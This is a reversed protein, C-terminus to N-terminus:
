LARGEAATGAFPKDVVVSLGADIAATAHEAHRGNPSAVVVLDLDRAAHWLEEANALLRAEPYQRAASARRDPNNTVIAALSLGPTAAILPSHFTEGALGFGIVGVRADRM